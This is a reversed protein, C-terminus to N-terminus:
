GERAMDDERQLLSRLHAIEMELDRVKDQLQAALAEQEEDGIKVARSM